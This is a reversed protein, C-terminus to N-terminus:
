LKDKMDQLSSDYNQNLRSKYLNSMLAVRGWDKDGDYQTFTLTSDPNKWTATVGSFTQGYGNKYLVDKSSTPKGHKETLATLIAQSNHQLFRMEIYEIKDNLINVIVESGAGKIMPLNAVIYSSATSLLPKTDTTQFCRVGKMDAPFDSEFNGIYKFIPSVPNKSLPCEKMSQISSGLDVGRLAGNAPDQAGAEAAQLAILATLAIGILKM